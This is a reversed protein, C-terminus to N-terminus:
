ATLVGPSGNPPQPDVFTRRFGIDLRFQVSMITFDAGESWGYLISPARPELLRFIMRDATRRLEEELDASRHSAPPNLPM